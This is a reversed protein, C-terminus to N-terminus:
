LVSTSLATSVRGAVITPFLRLVGDGHKYFVSVGEIMQLAKWRLWLAIYRVAEECCISIM